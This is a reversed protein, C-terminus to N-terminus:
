GEALGGFGQFDETALGVAELAGGIETSATVLNSRDCWM